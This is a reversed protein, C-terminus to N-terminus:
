MEEKKEQIKPDEILTNFRTLNMIDQIEQIDYEPRPSLELKKRREVIANQLPISSGFNYITEAEHFYKDPAQNQEMFKNKLFIFFEMLRVNQPCTEVCAYCTTCDWINPIKEILLKDKLGLLSSELILRPNFDGKSVESIICECTCTGCQLCPYLSPNEKILSLAWVADGEQINKLPPVDWSAKRYIYPDSDSRFKRLFKHYIWGVLTIGTFIIYVNSMLESSKSTFSVSTHVFIVVVAIVNINHFIKNISYRLKKEYMSARINEIMRSKQFRNSMFIIALFMLLVLIVWGINGSILQASPFEGRVLTLPYHLSGLVLAIAAMRTHFKMLRDLDFNMEILKTKTMIIISFCMWIFSFIGLISGTRHSLNVLLNSSDLSILDPEEFWYIISAIIPSIYYLSQLFVKKIRSEM